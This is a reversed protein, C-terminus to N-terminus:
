GEPLAPPLPCSVFPRGTLRYGIRFASCGACFGTAAALMVRLLTTGSRRVGLVLVPAGPATM